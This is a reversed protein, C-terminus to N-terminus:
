VRLFLVSNFAARCCSIGCVAEEWLQLASFDYSKGLSQSLEFATDSQESPQTIELSTV